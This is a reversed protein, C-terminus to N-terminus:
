PLPGPGAPEAPELDRACDDPRRPHQAGARPVADSREGLRAGPLLPRPDALRRAEQRRGARVGAGVAPDTDEPGHRPSSPAPAAAIAVAFLLVLPRLM